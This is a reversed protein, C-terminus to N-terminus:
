VGGTRQALAKYLLMFMAEPLESLSKVGVSARPLLAQIAASQIGIGYVEFGLAEAARLVRQAAPVSDPEGDTMIVVM